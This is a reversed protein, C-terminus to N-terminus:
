LTILLSFEKFNEFNRQFNRNKFIKKIKKLIKM